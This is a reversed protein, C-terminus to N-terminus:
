SDKAESPGIREVKTKAKEMADVAQDVRKDQAHAYRMVMKLSLHGSFEQITPIDAGTAALNSVATHRMTHPIVEGPDLGARIVCRRFATKMDEIHGSASKASPFIWDEPDEAMERERLLVQTLESSLPQGRLRGGKVRVRLRRRRPDFGDFRASLVESHRLGTSLGVKIFLWSYPNGDKLGADLLAAEEEHSLVRNRRNDPEKLKIMPFPAAIKGQDALRNGMHRYTSLVRNVNGLKHGQNLMHNRFKEVTFKSIREVRMTGFYPVLHLRLHGEKSILDRAGVEREGDLYLESAKAFTLQTKRGRPLQLRGERAESRVKNIFEEAQTRTCGDSERGVVRHVREGDVMINISFKVDGDSLREATTGHETIRQGPELKRIEPRTLRTFRLPM